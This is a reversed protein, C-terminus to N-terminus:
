GNSGGDDVAETKVEGLKGEVIAVSDTALSEADRYLKRSADGGQVAVPRQECATATIIVGLIM